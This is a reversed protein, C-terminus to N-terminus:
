YFINNFRGMTRKLSARRAHKQEIDVPTDLWIGDELTDETNKENNDPEVNDDYEFIREELPSM